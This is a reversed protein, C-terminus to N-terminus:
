YQIYTSVVPYLYCIDNSVALVEQDLKMKTEETQMGIGLKKTRENEM